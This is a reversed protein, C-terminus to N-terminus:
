YNQANTTRPNPLLCASFPRIIVGITRKAYINSALRRLRTPQSKEISESPQRTSPFRLPSPSSYKRYDHLSAGFKTLRGVALRTTRSSRAHPNSDGGKALYARQESTKSHITWDKRVFFLTPPKIRGGYASTIAPERAPVSTPDMPNRQKTSCGVIEAAAPFWM